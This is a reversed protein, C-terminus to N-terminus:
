KRIIIKNLVVEIALKDEEDKVGKQLENLKDELIKCKYYKWSNIVTKGNHNKIKNEQARKPTNM